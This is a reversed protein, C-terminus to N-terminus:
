YQQAPGCVTSGRSEIQRKNLASFPTPLPHLGLTNVLIHRKRGKIKKRRIVNLFGRSRSIVNPSGLSAYPLSCFPM